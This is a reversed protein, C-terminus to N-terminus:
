IQHLILKIYAPIKLLNVRTGFRGRTTAALSYLPALFPRDSIIAEAVFSMRGLAADFNAVTRDGKLVRTIWGVVWDRRSLSVGVGYVKM